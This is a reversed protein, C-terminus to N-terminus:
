ERRQAQVFRPRGTLDPVTEIDSWGGQGAVEARLGEAHSEDHEMILWGGPRLLRAAHAALELPLAMGTADGGYLALQPDHRAEAQRPIQGEPVYPPNCLVLDVIGALETLATRADGHIVYVGYRELNPRACAVATDDREVAYLRAGGPRERLTHAVAAAIAGSGTCLDVVVVDGGATSGELVALGRSVLVETEPRPIFVGPGVALDLGFFAATGTLHQLPIRQVRRAVLAEFAEAEDGTPYDGRLVAAMASGRDLRLVHAALQEADARPSDVGAERLRRVAHALQASWDPTRRPESM